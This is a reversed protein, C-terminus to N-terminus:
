YMSLNVPNLWSFTFIIYGISELVDQSEIKVLCVCVCSADEIISERSPLHQDDALLSLICLCSTENGRLLMHNWCFIYNISYIYMDYVIYWISYIINLWIKQLESTYKKANRIAPHQSSSQPHPPLPPFLSCHSLSPLCAVLYSRFAANPFFALLFQPFFRPFVM